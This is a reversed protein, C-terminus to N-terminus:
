LKLTINFQSGEDNDLEDAAANNSGRESHKKRTSRRTADTGEVRDAVAGLYLM